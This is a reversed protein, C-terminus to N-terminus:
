VGGGAVVGPACTSQRAMQKLTRETQEDLRFWDPRGGGGGEEPKIVGADKWSRVKRRSIGFHEALGRTSYLGDSRRAPWQGDEPLAQPSQIGRRKRAGRLSQRNWPQGQTTPVGRKNLEAAIAEDTWGANMLECIVDVTSTDLSPPPRYRRREVMVESVAGTHWLVQVRTMRRPVDVPTLTVQRVLVRLMNKRQAHTTTPARWVRPLDRALALVQSRDADSLEVKELRRSRQYDVELAQLERLKAEWDDELTQAVVRNDPDVSRYRREALRAEYRSRELRARWQRELEGAQREVERAVALSLEVEDPQAAGLFLESVQADVERASVSWCVQTSIGHHLPATCVYRPVHKGNQQTSMRHGCRGCLVLGQLLARGERAAGREGLHNNNRELRDQNAVYEEWSIYAPHHDRLCVKWSEMPLRTIKGCRLTGDVLATRVERRGYVYAGAYIPNHLISLVTTRV